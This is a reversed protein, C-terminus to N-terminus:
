QRAIERGLRVALAAITMTPHTAGYTPFVSGGAVYLNDIGHHRLDRDVVGKSGEGMRTTGLLHVGLDELVFKVDHAGLARMRRPIDHELFDLSRTEYRGPGNIRVANLPIGFSDKKSSLTV